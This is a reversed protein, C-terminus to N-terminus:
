CKSANPQQPSNVEKGNSKKFVNKDRTTVRPISVSRKRRMQTEDELGHRAELFQGRVVGVAQNSDSDEVGVAGSREYIIYAQISVQNLHPVNTPVNPHQYNDRTRKMTKEKFKNSAGRGKGWYIEIQAWRKGVVSGEITGLKM